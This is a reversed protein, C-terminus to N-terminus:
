TVSYTYPRRPQRALLAHSSRARATACRVYSQGLRGRAPISPEADRAQHVGGHILVSPLPYELPYPRPTQCPTGPSPARATARYVHSLAHGYLSPPGRCPTPKYPTTMQEHPQTTYCQPIHHTAPGQASTIQRPPTHDHFQPFTWSFYLTSQLLNSLITCSICWMYSM